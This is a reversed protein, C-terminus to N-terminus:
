IEILKEGRDKIKKEIDRSAFDLAVLDVKHDIFMPLEVLAKFYNRASIGTVALDIDSNENFTGDVLSGFLFVEKCGISKLYEIAKKVKEDIKKNFKM